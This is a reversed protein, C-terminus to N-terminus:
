KGATSGTSVANEPLAYAVVSDGLTTDMFHHGGAAIVVYQRGKEVYSIPTAQGGAPLKDRWLQKGTKTDFARIYDDLTAAIFTVGGKTVVSGGNNPTGITIDLHSPIGFPGNAAATGIPKKWLLKGSPIGIGSLFGWPPAICPDGLPSIWKNSVIGFPAGVQPGGLEGMEKQSREGIPKAKVKDRPVKVKMDPMRNSNVVLIKNSPDYAIGGWDMGGNDGPYEIWSGSKAEVPPTFEGQYRAKQFQIRCWLQDIPSIGWMDSAKLTDGSFEPMKVSYPQTPATHDGESTGQPVPKEEVPMLPKGTRRDLVFLEGRKSAQILAPVTGDATPWDVLTPQSGLDYDWLDHHITQFSWRPKGTKVDLAVVASSYKEEQPTRGGGWYDAARNGMPLYVLGLKDDGAIMSWVNPTSRSYTKGQPPPGSQDPRDMDWAWLMRGTLADWGRVVGSPANLKQNDVVQHGLVVVDNVITPASNASFFGPITDGIGQLLNAAGNDGFSTCPKGTDADVALLRGDTTGYIIRRPCQPTGPPAEWYAVGRCTADYVNQLAAKKVKPDFRWKQTGTSPDIDIVMQSPTCVYLNDGVKLPTNEFAYEIGESAPPEKDGTHFEWVKELKGANQPTIQAAPTFHDAANSGGYNIWNGADHDPVKGVGSAVTNTTPAAPTAQAGSPASQSPPQAAPTRPQPESTGPVATSAPPPNGTSQAFAGSAALVLTGTLILFSKM